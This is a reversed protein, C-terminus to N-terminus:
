GGLNELFVVFMRSDVANKPELGSGAANEFWVNTRVIDLDILHTKFIFKSM